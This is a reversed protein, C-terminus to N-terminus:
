AYATAQARETPSATESLRVTVMMQTSAEFHQPTLMAVVAGTSLGVLLCSIVVVMQRRVIRLYDQLQM